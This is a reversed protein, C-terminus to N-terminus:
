NLVFEPLLVFPPIDVEIEERTQLDEFTFYGSMSGYDSAVPCWSEYEFRSGPIIVPMQGIVGEGEVEREGFIGDSIYWHRRRLQVPHNSFNEIIIHYSFVYQAGHVSQKKEHRPIATVHIQHSIDPYKAM